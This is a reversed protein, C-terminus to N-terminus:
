KSSWTKLDATISPWHCFPKDGKDNWTKEKAATCFLQSARHPFKATQSLSAMMQFGIKACFFSLLFHIPDKTGINCHIDWESVFPIRLLAIQCKVWYHGAGKKLESKLSHFETSQKLNPIIKNLIKAVDRVNGQKETLCFCNPVKPFFFIPNFFVLTAHPDRGQLASHLFHLEWITNPLKFETEVRASINSIIILTIIKPVIGNMSHYIIRDCWQCKKIYQCGWIMEDIASFVVQSDSLSAPHYKCKQRQNNHLFPNM